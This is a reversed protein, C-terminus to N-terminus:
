GGGLPLALQRDAERLRRATRRAFAEADGQTRGNILVFPAARQIVVGARRLETLDAIRHAKRESVIRRASRPGIGPVRLLEPLEARNLEIPFREPHAQAWVLKPDEELSLNGDPEFIIDHAHWGYSRFLFDTQYLRHERMLPAPPADELPTDPVPQFASFYARELRLDRYLGSVTSM